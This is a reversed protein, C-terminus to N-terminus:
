SVPQMATFTDVASFISSSAESLEQAERSPPQAKGLPPTAFQAAAVIRDPLM